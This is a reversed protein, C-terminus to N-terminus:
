KNIVDNRISSHLMERQRMQSQLNILNGVNSSNTGVHTSMLANISKTKRVPHICFTLTTKPALM